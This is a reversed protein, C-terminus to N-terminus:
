CCNKGLRKLGAEALKNDEHLVLAKRFAAQAALKDGKRELLTGLVAQAQAQQQKARNVGSALYTRAAAIGRDPDLRGEQHASALMLWGDYFKPYRRLLEEMYRATEPWRKAAALTIGVYIRPDRDNPDARAAATFATLAQDFKEDALLNIARAHHGASVSVRQLAAEIKRAQSDSGGAVWPAQRCYRMLLLGARANRPDLAFAKEWASKAARAQELSELVNGSSFVATIRAEARAEHCRSANPFRKLCADASRAAGAPDNRLTAIRTRYYLTDVTSGGQQDADDLLSIARDLDFVDFAAVAASLANTAVATKAAANADAAAAAHAASTGLAVTCGLLLLVAPLTIRRHARM